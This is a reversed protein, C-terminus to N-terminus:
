PQPTLRQRLAALNEFDAPALKFYGEEDMTMVLATQWHQLNLSLYRLAVEVYDPQHRTAILLEVYHDAYSVVSLWGRKLVVDCVNACGPVQDQHRKIWEDHFGPIRIIGGNAQLWIAGATWQFPITASM